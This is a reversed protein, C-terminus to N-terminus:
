NIVGAGPSQLGFRLLALPVFPTQRSFFRRSFPRLPNRGGFARAGILL